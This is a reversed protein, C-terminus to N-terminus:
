TWVSMSTSDSVPFSVAPKSFLKKFRLCFECNDCCDVIMKLVKEDDCGSDKLLKALQDKSAHCLQRHLKIAKKKKEENCLSLLNTM